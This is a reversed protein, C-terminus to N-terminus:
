MNSLELLPGPLADVSSSYPGKTRTCVCVVLCRACVKGCRSMSEVLTVLILSTVSGALKSADSVGRATQCLTLSLSVATVDFFTSFDISRDFKAIMLRVQAVESRWAAAVTDGASCPM